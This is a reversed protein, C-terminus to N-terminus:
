IQEQVIQSPTWNIIYNYDDGEIKIEDTVEIDNVFLRISSKDIGLSPHRDILSIRVDEWIEALYNAPEFWEVEPPHIDDALPTWDVQASIAAVAKEIEYDLDIDDVLHIVYPPITGSTTAHPEDTAVEIIWILEGDYSNKDVVQKYTIGCIIAKNLNLSNRVTFWAM